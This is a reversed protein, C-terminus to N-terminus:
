HTAGNTQTVCQRPWSPAVKANTESQMVTNLRMYTAFGDPMSKGTKCSCCLLLPQLGVVSLQWNAARNQKYGFGQLCTVNRLKTLGILLGLVLKKPAM